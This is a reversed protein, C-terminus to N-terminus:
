HHLSSKNTLIVYTAAFKSPVTSCKSINQTRWMYINNFWQIGVYLRCQMVRYTTEREKLGKEVPTIRGKTAAENGELLFACHGQTLSMNL